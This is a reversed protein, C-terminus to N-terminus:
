TSEGTLEYASVYSHGLQHYAHSLSPIWFMKMSVTILVLRRLAAGSSSSSSAIIKWEFERFFQYRVACEIAFSPFLKTKFLFNM